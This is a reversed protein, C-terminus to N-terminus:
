EEKSPRRFARPIWAIGLQRAERLMQRDEWTPVPGHKLRQIREWGSNRSPDTMWVSALTHGGGAWWGLWGQMLWTWPIM